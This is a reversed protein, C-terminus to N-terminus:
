GNVFVDWGFCEVICVAGGAAGFEGEGHCVVYVSVELGM